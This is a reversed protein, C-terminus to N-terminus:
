PWSSIAGPRLRARRRGLQRHQRRPLRARPDGRPLPRHRLRQERRGGLGRRADDGVETPAATAVGTRAAAPGPPLRLRGARARLHVLGDPAPFEGPEPRRRALAQRPRVHVVARPGDGPAPGRPGRGAGRRRRCLALGSRRRRGTALIQWACRRPWTNSRRGDPGRLRRQCKSWAGPDNSRGTSGM